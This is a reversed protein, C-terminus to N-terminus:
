DDCLRRNADVEVKRLREVEAALDEILRNPWPGPEVKCAKAWQYDSLAQRARGLVDFGSM